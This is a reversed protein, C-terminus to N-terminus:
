KINDRIEKIEEQKKKRFNIEEIAFNELLSIEYEPLEWLKFYDYQLVSAIFHLKKVWYRYEENKDIDFLDFLM